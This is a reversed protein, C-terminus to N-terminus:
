IHILSLDYPSPGIVGTDQAQASAALAYVLSILTLKMNKMLIVKVSQM